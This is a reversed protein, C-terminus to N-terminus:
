MKIYSVSFQCSGRGLLSHKLSKQVGSYFQGYIRKVTSTDSSFRNLENLCSQLCENRQFLQYVQYLSSEKRSFSLLAAAGVWINPLLKLDSLANSIPGALSAIPVQMM